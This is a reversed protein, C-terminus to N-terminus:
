PDGLGAEVPSVSLFLGSTPESPLDRTQPHPTGHAKLPPGSSLRKLLPCHQDRGGAATPTLLLGWSISLAGTCGLPAPPKHVM